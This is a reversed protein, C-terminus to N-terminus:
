QFVSADVNPTVVIAEIVATWTPKIVSSYTLVGDSTFCEESVGAADGTQLTYCSSELGAVTRTESALPFLFTKPDVQNFEGPNLSLIDLLNYPEVVDRRTAYATYDDVCRAEM